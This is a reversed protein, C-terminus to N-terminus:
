IGLVHELTPLAFPMGLETLRRPQVRQSVLLMEDAMQGLALRLVFAPVRFLAPLGTARALARTLEANTAPNPSVLNVPGVTSDSAIILEIARVADDLAIWSMWQRGSGLRGGFGIRFPLMMRPLAGGERSLVVGTRVCVVRVGADRAPVTAAEWDRCLAALFGTGVVSSEDLVEDGRDGYFGVASANILLGPRRSPPLGALLNAVLTTGNIRSDHIRRRRSGTWRRGINEGALHVVVDIGDFASPDLVGADPDWAVEDTARPPRRVLRRVTSGTRGLARCLASGILGSAGSMLVATM